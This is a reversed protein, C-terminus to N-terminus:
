LFFVGTKCDETLELSIKLGNSGNNNVFCFIFQFIRRLCFNTSSFHVHQFDLTHLSPLEIIEVVTIRM